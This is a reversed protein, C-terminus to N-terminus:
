DLGIAKGPFRKACLEEYGEAMPGAHEAIVEYTPRALFAGSEDFWRYERTLWGADYSLVAHLSPSLAVGAAEEVARLKAADLPLAEGIPSEPGTLKGLIETILSVGREATSKKAAM